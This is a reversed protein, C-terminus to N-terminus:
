HFEKCMVKGCPVPLNSHISFVQVPFQFFIALGHLFCGMARFAASHLNRCQRKGHENDATCAAAVKAIKCKRFFSPGGRGVLEGLPSILLHFVKRSDAVCRYHLCDLFHTRSNYANGGPDIVPIHKVPPPHFHTLTNSGADKEVLFSINDCIVM